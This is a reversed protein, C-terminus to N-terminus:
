CDDLLCIVVANLASICKVTFADEKVIKACRARCKNM